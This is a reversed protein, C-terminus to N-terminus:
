LFFILNDEWVQHCSLWVATSMCVLIILVLWSMNLDVVGCSNKVGCTRHTCWKNLEHHYVSISVSNEVEFQSTENHGYTITNYKLKKIVDQTHAQTNHETREPITLV